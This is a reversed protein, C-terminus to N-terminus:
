ISTRCVELFNDIMRQGHPTLVSEPHFQVAYIPKEEHQIGMLVDESSTAIVKWAKDVHDVAWSHYLGVEIKGPLGRFLASATDIVCQVSQGHHIRELNYISGGTQLAYAQMGLCVALVPMAVDLEAIFDMLQGAERPQGPGPSIVVAHFQHVTTFDIADNRWVEVEVHGKAELYHLLNYTFSDYNDILLIKM